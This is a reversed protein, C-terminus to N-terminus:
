IGCTTWVACATPFEHHTNPTKHCLSGRGAATHALGVFVTPTLPKCARATATHRETANTTCWVDAQGQPAHPGSSHHAASTGALPAQPAPYCTNTTPAPALCPLRCASPSDLEHTGWKGASTHRHAGAPGRRVGGKWWRGAAAGQVTAAHAHQLRPSVPVGSFCPDYCSSNCTIASHGPCQSPPISTHSATTAGSLHLHWACGSLHRELPMMM